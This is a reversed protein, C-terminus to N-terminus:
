APGARRHARGDHQHRGPPPFRRDILASRLMTQTFGKAHATGSLWCNSAPRAPRNRRRPHRRLRQSAAPSLYCDVAQGILEPATVQAWTSVVSWSWRGAAAGALLAQFLAAFRALTEGLNNPKITDQSMIRRLGDQGGFM